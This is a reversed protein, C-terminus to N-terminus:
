KRMEQEVREAVFIKLLSKYPIDRKRALVKLDDIVSQPLTISVLEDSLSPHSLKLNPMEARNAESLDIYDASDHTAWFEREEDESDFRPILKKITTM